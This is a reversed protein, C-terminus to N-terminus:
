PQDLANEEEVVNVCSKLMEVTNAVATQLLEDPLNVPFVDGARAMGAMVVDAVHELVDILTVDEPVGGERDLHHRNVKLHNKYWTKEIFPVGDQSVFDEHFQDLNELKDYDHPYTLGGTAYYMRQTKMRIEGIFWQLAKDVDQMHTESSKKLQEKTVKSPDCSRTDATPSKHILIKDEFGRKARETKM